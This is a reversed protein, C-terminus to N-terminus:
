RAEKAGRGLLARTLPWAVLTILAPGLYRMSPAAENTVGDIWFLLFEYLGVLALAAVAQQGLPYVRIRLHFRTVVYAIVALALANQGLLDGTITDLLLGALWAFGIGIADPRALSWYIVALAVWAPRFADAWAPLPVITLALALVVSFIYGRRPYSSKV